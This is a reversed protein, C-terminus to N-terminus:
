GGNLIIERGDKLLISTPWGLRPRDPPRGTAPAPLRPTATWDFDDEKLVALQDILHDSPPPLPTFGASFMATRLLEKDREDDIDSLLSHLRYSIQSVRDKYEDSELKWSDRKLKDITRILRRIRGVTKTRREVRYLQRATTEEQVVGLVGEGFEKADKYLEKIGEKFQPYTAIANYIPGLATWICGVVVMWAKLSGEELRIGIEVTPGYIVDAITPCQLQMEEAIAQIRREGAHFPKLHVYAESLITM